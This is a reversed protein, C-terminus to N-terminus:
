WMGQTCLESISADKRSCLDRECKNSSSAATCNCTYKNSYCEIFVQLYILIFTMDFSLRDICIFLPFLPFISAKFWTKKERWTWVTAVTVILLAVLAALSSYAQRFAGSASTTVIIEAIMGALVSSFSFSSILWTILLPPLSPFCFVLSFAIM